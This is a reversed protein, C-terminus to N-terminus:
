HHDFIWSVMIDLLAAKNRKPNNKLFNICKLLIQACMQMQIVNIHMNNSPCIYFTFHFLVKMQLPMYRTKRWVANVLVRSFLSLCLQPHTAQVGPPDHSEWAHTLCIKGGSLHQPLTKGGLVSLRRQSCRFGLSPWADGRLVSVHEGELLVCVCLVSVRRWDSGKRKRIRLMWCHTHVIGLLKLTFLHLHCSPGGPAAPASSASVMPCAEAHPPLRVVSLLESLPVVKTKKDTHPHHHRKVGPGGDAGGGPPLM